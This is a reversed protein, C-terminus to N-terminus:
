ASRYMSNLRRPSAGLFYLLRLKWMLCITKVFGHKKWRRASTIARKSSPESDSGLYPQSLRKLRKSLEIDEMLDQDPFGGIAEFADRKVFQCQDGTAIGSLRSRTNIMFALFRFRPESTDFGLKFFGWTYKSAAFGEFMPEGCGTILTDAHLFLLVEGEAHRAGLNMQGARSAKSSEISIIPFSQFATLISLTADTSGGDVVVVEYDVNAFFRHLGM